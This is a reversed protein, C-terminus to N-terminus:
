VCGMEMGERVLVKMKEIEEPTALRHAMGIVERRIANHGIYFAVNTGVGNKEYAAVLRRIQSPSQSGDPGGVITTVGQRIVGENWRRDPNATSNKTHSHVDIFEPAVVLGAAAITPKAQASRAPGVFVIRDGIVGVDANVGRKGSGDVVTGNRILVDFTEPSTQSSASTIISFALLAALAFRIKMIEEPQMHFLFGPCFTASSTSLHFPTRLKLRVCANSM